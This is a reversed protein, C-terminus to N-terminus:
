SERFLLAHRGGALGFRWTTIEGAFCTGVENPSSTVQIQVSNGYRLIIGNNLDWALKESLFIRIRHVTVLMEHRMSM